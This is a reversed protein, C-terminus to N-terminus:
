NLFNEQLLIRNKLNAFNCRGFLTRKIYKTKNNKGEVTGNTFTPYEISNKIASLDAEVARCAKDLEKNHLSRVQELWIELPRKIIGKSILVFDLLLSLIERVEPYHKFTYRVITTYACEGHRKFVLNAIESRTARRISIIEPSKYLVRSYQRFTSYTRPYGEKKIKDYITPNTNGDEHM